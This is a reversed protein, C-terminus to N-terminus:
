GREALASAPREVLEVVVGDPDRLFLVTLGGLKTGVLPIWLPEGRQGDPLQSLAVHAATVDASALAIRYLGQTNAQDPVTGFAAPRHWQVLELTFTPDQRLGISATSVEVEGTPVAEVGRLRRRAPPAVTTFGLGAYWELSRQIDTCNIRLHSLRPRAPATVGRAAEVLEVTVGDLDTVRLGRPQQGRVPLTGPGMPGPHALYTLRDECASVDPVQFGMASLGLQWPQPAPRRRVPPSDWQVLEVAAAVRPGRADYLFWTDTDTTGEIGLAAGDAQPNRSRMRRTLGLVGAYFDHAAAVGTTNLNCHLIGHALGPRSLSTTSSSVPTTTM